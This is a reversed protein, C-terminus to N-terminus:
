EDEWLKHPCTNEINRAKAQLRCGCGRISKENKNVYSNFYDENINKLKLNLEDHKIWDNSCGEGFANIEYLPCKRCIKIREEFLKEELSFLEKYHGKM